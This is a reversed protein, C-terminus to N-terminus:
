LYDTIFVIYPVYLIYIYEQYHKTFYTFIYAFYDKSNDSKYDVGFCLHSILAYCDVFIVVEPSIILFSFRLIELVLRSSGVKKNTVLSKSHFPKSKM